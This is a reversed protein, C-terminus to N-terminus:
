PAHFTSRAGDAGILYEAEITTSIQQTGIHKVVHAIVGDPTQDFGVLETALEVYVGHKELHERLIAEHHDEGIM